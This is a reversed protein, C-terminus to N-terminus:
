LLKVLFKSLRILQGPWVILDMMFCTAASRGSVSKGHVILGEMFSMEEFIRWFGIVTRLEQPIDLTILGHPVIVADEGIDDTKKGNLKKGMFEVTFSTNIGNLKGTKKAIEFAHVYWKYQGKTDVTLPVWHPWHTAIPDTPEPECPISGTPPTKFKGGDKKADYRAYPIHEKKINDWMLLGCSGDHKMDIRNATLIDELAEPMFNDAYVLENTTKGSRSSVNTVTNTKISHFMKEGNFDSKTVVNIPQKLLTVTSGDIQVTKIATAM